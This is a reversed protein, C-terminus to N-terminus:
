QQSPSPPRAGAPMGGAFFSLGVREYAKQARWAGVPDRAVLEIAMERSPLCAMAEERNRKKPHKFFAVPKGGDNVRSADSEGFSLADGVRLTGGSVIECNVGAADWLACMLGEAANTRENYMCPVCRRHVFLESEGLYLTSGVAGNLEDASIRDLIVNRRLDSVNMEIGAARLAAAAGQASILTLQRGPESKCSYTGRASAYRDEAIGRGAILEAEGVLRM